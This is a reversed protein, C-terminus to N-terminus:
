NMQYSNDTQTEANAADGLYNVAEAYRKSSKDTNAETKGTDTKNAEETETKDRVEDPHLKDYIWEGVSEMWAKYKDKINILAEAFASKATKHETMDLTDEYSFDDNTKVKLSEVDTYSDETAKLLYNHATTALQRASEDRHNGDVLDNEGAYTMSEHQFESSVLGVVSDWSLDERSDCYEKYQNMKAKYETLNDDIIEGPSMAAYKKTYMIMEYALKKDDPISEYDVDSDGSILYTMDTDYKETTTVATYSAGNTDTRPSIGPNLFLNSADEGLMTKAGDRIVIAHYDTSAFNQGVNYAVDGVAEPVVTLPTVLVDKASINDQMVDVAESINEIDDVYRMDSEELNSYDTNSQTYGVNAYDVEKNEDAM